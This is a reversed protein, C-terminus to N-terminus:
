RDINRQVDLMECEALPQAVGQCCGRRRGVVAVIRPAVIAQADSNPANEIQEILQFQRGTM